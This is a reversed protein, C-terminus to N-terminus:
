KTKNRQAEVKEKREKGKLCYPCPVVIHAGMEHGCVEWEIIEPVLGTDDCNYCAIDAPEKDRNDITM